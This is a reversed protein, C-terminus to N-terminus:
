LRLAKARINRGAEELAPRHSESFRIRKPARHPYLNIAWDVRVELGHTREILCALAECLNASVGASVASELDGHGAGSNWREAVARSAELAEILRLIIRRSLPEDGLNEWAEDLPREGSPPVPVMLNIICSGHETQGLRVRKVFDAAEKNAGTRYVPQPGTVTACAAALLMERAQSVVEVGADLSISGNTADDSARVRIVDHDADMLTRFTALEDTDGAESFVGILRSVVSAYDGFLDTRPLVIEPRGDGRWVDAADGYPAVKAWGASRAYAALAGPTIGKLAAGDVIHAKM